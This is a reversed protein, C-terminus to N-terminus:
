RGNVDGTNGTTLLFQLGYHALAQLAAV